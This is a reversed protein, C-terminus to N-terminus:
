KGPRTIRTGGAGVIRASIEFPTEPLSSVAKKLGSALDAWDSAATYSDLGGGGLSGQISKGGLEVHRSVDWGISGDPSPPTGPILRAVLRVGTLDAERFAKLDLGMANPEPHAAFSTLVEVFRKADLRQNKMASILAAFAPRPEASDESWEVSTVVTSNTRAIKPRETVSKPTPVPVTPLSHATRWSNLSLLRQRNRTELSGEVDFAYRDPWRDSLFWAALDCIRPDSLGKDNRSMSTNFCETTDELLGALAQETAELTKPSTPQAEHRWSWRNTDGLAVVAEYKARPSRQRIDATLAIIAEDSDCGSLFETVQNWVYENEESQEPKQRWEKIMAAVATEHELTRLAFAAAVRSELMPSHVLEDRLFDVGLPNGTKGLQDVLGARVSGNTAAKAGRVLAATAVDPYRGTLLEAQAPADHGGTAVADILAQKEGKKQFDTWWAEATKRAAPGEVAASMYTNSLYDRGSRSGFFSKGTIRQLIAEACDGVTLVFDPDQTFRIAGLSRTLTDSDLVAILQPVAPYGLRVLQHAATNTASSWSFFIDCRGPTMIQHGNQDRLQYILESVQEEVRARALDAPSLAAHAQDEAIMRRLVQATKRARECHRSNPYNRLITELQRLIETRSVSPDGLGRIARWMMNHGIDQQLAGRFSLNHEHGHIRTPIKQAEDYLRRAEQLIGQRWCAWALVFVEAREESTPHLHRFPDDEKPPRSQIEQIQAKAQERLDVWEFARSSMKEKPLSSNTVSCDSLDATFLKLTGANTALVFAIIHEIRVPEGKATWSGGNELRVCPCGKVDPFGLTSFWEFDARAKSSLGSPDAHCATLLFLLGVSVVLARALIGLSAHGVNGMLPENNRVARM